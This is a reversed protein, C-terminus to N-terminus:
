IQDDVHRKVESNQQNVALVEELEKELIEIRRQKRDLQEQLGQRAVDRDSSFSTVHTELTALEEHLHRIETKLVEVQGVSQRVEEGLARREAELLRIREDRYEVMETREREL